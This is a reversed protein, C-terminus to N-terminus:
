CFTNTLTDLLIVRDASFHWFGSIYRAKDRDVFSIIALQSVTARTHSRVAVQFDENDKANRQLKSFCNYRTALGTDCLVRSNHVQYGYFKKMDNSSVGSYRALTAM